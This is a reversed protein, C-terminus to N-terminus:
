QRACQADGMEAVQGLGSRSDDRPRRTWDVIEYSLTGNGRGMPRCPQVDEHSYPTNWYRNRQEGPVRVHLWM